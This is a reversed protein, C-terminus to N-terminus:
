RRRIPIEVLDSRLRDSQEDLDATFIMTSAQGNAGAVDVYSTVWYATATTTLTTPPQRHSDGDPGIYTATITEASAGGTYSYGIRVQGTTGTTRARTPMVSAVDGTRSSTLVIGANKFPRGFQDTVTVTVASGAREGAGPADQFPAM